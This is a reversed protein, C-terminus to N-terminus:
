STLWLAPLRFPNRPQPRPGPTAFPTPSSSRPRHRRESLPPVRRVMAARRRPASPPRREVPPRVWAVTWRWVGPATTGVSRRWPRSRPLSWSRERDALRTGVDLCCRRRSEPPAAADAPVTLARHRTCAPVLHVVGLEVSLELSLKRINELSLELSLKVSLELSLKTSIKKSVTETITECFTGSVAENINKLSLELSLEVSLELSLKRINELSLEMSLEVSLELSLKRINELSLELSLKM